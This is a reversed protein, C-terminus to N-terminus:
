SQAQHWNHGSGADVKLPVSLSIASEMTTVIAQILENNREAGKDPAEILLEDHIQLILKAGPYRQRLLHDVKIM